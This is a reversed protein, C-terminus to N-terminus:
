YYTSLIRMEVDGAGFFSKPCFPSTGPRLRRVERQTDTYLHPRARQLCRRYSIGIASVYRTRLGAIAGIVKHIKRGATTRAVGVMDGTVRHFTGTALFRLAILLQLSPSLTQNRDSEEEVHEQIQELLERAKGKSLRFRDKLEFDNVCQVM